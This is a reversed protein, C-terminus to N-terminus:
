IGGHDDTKTIDFNRRDPFAPAASPERRVNLGCCQPFQTKDVVCYMEGVKPYRRSVPKLCQLPLSGPLMGDADVVLPSNAEDPSFTM